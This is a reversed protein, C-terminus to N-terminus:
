KIDNFLDELADSQGTKRACWGERVANRAAARWDKMPTRGVKWAKSAYHDWWREADICPLGKDACYADAYAQVQDVSVPRAQKLVEGAIGADTKNGSESREGSTLFFDEQTDAHSPSETARTSSADSRESTNGKGKGKGKGKGTRRAQPESAGSSGRTFDNDPLTSVDIAYGFELFNIGHHAFRSIIGKHSNNKPNLVNGKQQFSVFGVIWFRGNSLKEIRKGCERLFSEWEIHMGILFDALDEDLEFVGAIDCTDCVYLWALKDGPLLRRFWTDSWKDADTFRNKGM